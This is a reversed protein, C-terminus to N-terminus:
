LANALTKVSPTKSAPKLPLATPQPYTLGADKVHSQLRSPTHPTLDPIACDESKTDKLQVAFRGHFWRKRAKGSELWNRARSPRTSALPTGNPDLVPVSIQNHPSIHRTM